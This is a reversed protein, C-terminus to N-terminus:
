IHILSLTAAPASSANTGSVAKTAPDTTSSASDTGSGCAALALLAAATLPIHYKLKFM